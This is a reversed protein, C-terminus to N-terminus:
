HAIEIPTTVRTNDANLRRWMINDYMVPLINEVRPMSTFSVAMGVITKIRGIEYENGSM